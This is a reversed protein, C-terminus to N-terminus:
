DSCGVCVEFIKILEKGNYEWISLGDDWMYPETAWFEPKNNKNIDTIALLTPKTCPPEKGEPYDGQNICTINLKYFLETEKKSPIRFRNVPSSTFLSWRPYESSNISAFYVCHDYNMHDLFGDVSALLVSNKPNSVSWFQQGNKISSGITETIKNNEIAAVIRFAGLSTTKSGEEGASFQTTTRENTIWGVLIQNKPIAPLTACENNACALSSWIFTTLLITLKLKM